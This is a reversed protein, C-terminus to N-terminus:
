LFSQLFNNATDEFGEDSRMNVITIKETAFQAIFWEM